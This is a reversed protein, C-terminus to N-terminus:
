PTIEFVTGFGGYSDSIISTGYLNGKADFMLTGVPLAGDTSNTFTHLVEETWKRGKQTPPQLKFAVGCGSSQNPCDQPEGGIQTVGYLVGKKDLVLSAFTPEAGDGKGTFSHLVTEKWSSGKPTLKFVVGCYYSYIICGSSLGGLKTMGYLNGANDFVLGSQPYGGDSTDTFPYLVTETWAGGKQLPPALKYVVGAAYLGGYITTGYLAGHKDFILDSMPNNGDAKGTFAYLIKLKWAGGQKRPPTLKYVEGAFGPSGFATTGYLAGNRDMVLNDYPECGDVKYTFAHLVTETWKGQGAPSVEYVVGCGNPGQTTAGFLNGAKDLIVGGQPNEGDNGCCTFDHLVNETWVGNQEVLQFVSGWGGSGGQYTTGYLAGNSDAVLGAEPYNGDPAAHFSYLTQFTQSWASLSGFMLLLLLLAGARAASVSCKKSHV